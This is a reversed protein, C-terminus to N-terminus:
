TNAPTSSRLRASSSSSSSYRANFTRAVRWSSVSGYNAPYSPSPVGARGVFWLGVLMGKGGRSGRLRRPEIRSRIRAVGEFWLGCGSRGGLIAFGPVIVGVFTQKEPEVHAIILFSAPAISRWAARAANWGLCQRDFNLCPNGDLCPNGVGPKTIFNISTESTIRMVPPGTV